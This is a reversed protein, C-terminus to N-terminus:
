VLKIGMNPSVRVSDGLGGTTQRSTVKFYIKGAVRQEVPIETDEPIIYPSSLDSVKKNTEKANTDIKILNSKNYGSQAYEYEEFTKAGDDAGFLDLQLFDTKRM